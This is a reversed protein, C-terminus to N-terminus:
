FLVPLALRRGTRLNTRAGRRSRGTFFTINFTSHKLLSHLASEPAEPPIRM